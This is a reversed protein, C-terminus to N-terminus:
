VVTKGPNLLGSPDFHRYLTEITSIGLAGKEAPLYRAHDAGVGHQHSITGGHRVIADSAASKLIQWRRRTEAPTAGCRFAYTTYISSGQPYLHSLHTFVHVREGMEALGNRLTTEIDALTGAVESWNVATELTDVAYGIEWLSNRLYPTRFRSKQWRAGLMPSIKPVRIGGNAACIELAQGFAQRVQRNTGTAGLMLLSKEEKAGRWALVRELLALTKGGGSLRLSTDTEVATSVRLMSLPVRGQAMQRAATAAVEFNPFFIGEFVEAEPLPTVRVTADTIIGMRGESGLVVERLDTAAASAPFTPLELTGAPAELTGGAFLREIRGYYLSQQGSSRAAVWGGLTSLEFSQPFHGLTYGRARLQAELDPGKVGAGFTALLSQEDLKQLKNLRSLNVTLIPADGPTPNIHGVVSTGGGYPILRTGTERAYDLLERVQSANTPYAIGDPFYLGDGSRIALLDPFSQGTAHKVRDAADTVILAHPALRSPQQTALACAEPLTLDRPTTGVGILNALYTKVTPAVHFVTTSDGWGNWNRV